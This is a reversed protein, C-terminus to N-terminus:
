EYLDKAMKDIGSVKNSQQRQHEKTLTKKNIHPGKAEYVKMYKM